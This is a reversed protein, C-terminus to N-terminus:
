QLFYHITIPVTQTTGTTNVIRGGREILASAANNLVDYSGGTIQYDVMNGAADFTVMFHVSGELNRRLAQQPYKKISNLKSMYSDVDVYGTGGNQGEGSGIGSGAGSEEGIGTGTGGKAEGGTGSVSAGAVGVSASEVGGLYPTSSTVGSVSNESMASSSNGVSTNGGPVSKIIEQENGQKTMSVEYESMDIQVVLDRHKTDVFLPHQVVYSLVLLFFFNIVVALLFSKKYSTEGM